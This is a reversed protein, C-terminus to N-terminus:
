AEGRNETTSQAEAAAKAAAAAAAKAAAQKELRENHGEVLLRIQDTKRAERDLANLRGKAYNFYHVLPIHAPCIYSCSGCSVCDRVGLRAAADLNEKRIFASM